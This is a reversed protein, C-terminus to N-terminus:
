KGNDGKAFKRLEDWGPPVTEGKSDAISLKKLQSEFVGLTYGSQRIFPDPSEFFRDALAKLQDLECAALMRKIAGADKAKQFIYKQGFKAEFGACFYNSFDRFPSNDKPPNEVEKKGDGRACSVNKHIKNKYQNLSSSLSPQWKQWKKEAGRKGAASRVNHIQSKKEANRTLRRCSLKAMIQWRKAMGNAMRKGDAEAVIQYMEVTSINHMVEGDESVAIWAVEATEFEKLQAIIHMANQPGTGWFRGFAEMSWEVGGVGTENLHAIMGVWAGQVELTLMRTAKAWDGYYLFFGPKSM